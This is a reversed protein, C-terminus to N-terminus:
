LSPLYTTFWDRVEEIYQKRANDTLLSGRGEKGLHAIAQDFKADDARQYLEFVKERIKPDKKMKRVLSALVARFNENLAEANFHEAGGKEGLIEGNNYIELITNQKPQASSRAAALVSFRVINRIDEDLHIRQVGKLKNSYYKWLTTYPDPFSHGGLNKVKVIKEL